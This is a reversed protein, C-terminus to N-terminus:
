ETFRAARRARVFATMHFAAQPPHYRYGVGVPCAHRALCGATMCPGQPQADLHAVCAEVEYTEGTFAGVPCASLCPRGDCTECPSLTTSAPPLDFVVPLLLAARFAHWLGYVPHINMGLPSTFGARARKAWTLFPLAPKDFPYVARGGLQEALPDIVARSWEDIQDRAADCQRQFRQFMVPGANGILLVQRTAKGETSDPVGDAAGPEFWGLAVFGERAIATLVPHEM